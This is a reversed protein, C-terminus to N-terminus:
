ARGPVVVAEADVVHEEPPDFAGDAAARLCKPCLNRLIRDAVAAAIADVQAQEPVNITAEVRRADVVVQLAHQEERRRSGQLANGADILIKAIFAQNAEALRKAKPDSAAAARKKETEAIKLLTGLGGLIARRSVRDIAEWEKQAEKDRLTGVFKSIDEPEGSPVIAEPTSTSPASGKARKGKKRELRRDLIKAVTDKSIGKARAIRGYSWRALWKTVVDDEDEPSM